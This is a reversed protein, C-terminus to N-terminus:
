QPTGGSYKRDFVKRLQLLERPALPRNMHKVAAVQFSAWKQAEQGAATIPQSPPPVPASSFPAAPVDATARMGGPTFTSGPKWGPMNAAEMAAQRDEHLALRKKMAMQTAEQQPSQKLVPAGSRYTYSTPIGDGHPKPSFGGASREILPYPETRGIPMGPKGTAPNLLGPDVANLKPGLKPLPPEPPRYLKLRQVIPQIAADNAANSIKASEVAGLRRSMAANIADQATAVQAGRGMRAMAHASQVDSTMNPLASRVEGGLANWAGVEGQTKGVKVMANPDGFRGLKSVDPSFAGLPNDGFARTGDIAAQADRALGQKWFPIEQGIRDAINAAGGLLDPAAHQGLWEAARPALRGLPRVFNMM